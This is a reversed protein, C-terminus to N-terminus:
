RDLQLMLLPIPTTTFFRNTDITQSWVTSWETFAANKIWTSWTYDNTASLTFNGNDPIKIYDNTGDSSQGYGINGTVRTPVASATGGGGQGHVATSTSDAFESATGNGSEKLHWVVKYNSDWVNTADQQSTAASNKYYMYLVTDTSNALSPVKVWAVLEGTAGDFKEIEHSLKTTGDSSTFIIDDGDDQADAALGTDSTLSILVPFNTLDATVKTNDITIKKRSSWSTNYWEAALAEQIGPLIRQNQWIVPYGLLVWSVIIIIVVVNPFSKILPKLRSKSLVM